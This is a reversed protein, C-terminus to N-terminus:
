SLNVFNNVLLNWVFFVHKLQFRTLDFENLIFNADVNADYQIYAFLNDTLSMDHTSMDDDNIRYNHLPTILKFRIFQYVVDLMNHLSNTGVYKKGKAIELALDEQTM